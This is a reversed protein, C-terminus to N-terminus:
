PPCFTRKSSLGPSVRACEARPSGPQPREAAPLQRRGHRAHARESQPRLLSPAQRCGRASSQRGGEQGPGETERGEGRPGEGQPAATGGEPRGLVESGELGLRVSVSASPRKPVGPLHLAGRREEGLPSMVLAVWGSSLNWMGLSNPQNRESSVCLLVSNLDTLMAMECTSVGLSLPGVQGNNLLHEPSVSCAGPSAGALRHTRGSWAETALHNTAGLPHPLGLGSSLCLCLFDLKRALSLPPKTRWANGVGLFEM